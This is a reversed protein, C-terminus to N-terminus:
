MQLLSHTSDNIGDGTILFMIVKRKFSSLVQYSTEPKVQTYVRDFPILSCFQKQVNQTDGTLLVIQKGKEKLEKM